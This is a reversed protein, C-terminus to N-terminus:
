SGIRGRPSVKDSAVPHFDIKNSCPRTGCIQDCDPTCFNQTTRIEHKIGTGQDALGDQLVALFSSGANVSSTKMQLLLQLPIVLGLLLVPKYSAYVRTIWSDITSRGFLHTM